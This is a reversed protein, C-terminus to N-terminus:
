GIRYIVELYAALNFFHPELITRKKQFFLIFRDTKRFILKKWDSRLREIKGLISKLYLNLSYSLLSFLIYFQVLFSSFLSLNKNQLNFLKFCCFEM